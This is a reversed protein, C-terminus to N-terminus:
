LGLLRSLEATTVQGDQVGYPGDNGARYVTYPVSGAKLSQWRETNAKVNALAEANTAGMPKLGGKGSLLSAEHEDMLAAPDPASLLMAGQAASNPNLFAVPMWHMRVRDTLPRAATWLAGCHPCQPDFFVQMQRAALAEGVDFGIGKSATEFAQKAQGPPPTDPTPPTPPPIPATSANLAATTVADQKSCAAVALLAAGCAGLWARRSSDAGDPGAPEITPSNDEVSM